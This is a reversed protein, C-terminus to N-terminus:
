EIRRGTKVLPKGDEDPTGFSEAMYAAHNVRCNRADNLTSFIGYTYKGSSDVVRYAGNSEWIETDRYWRDFQGKFDRGATPHGLSGCVIMGLFVGIIIGGILGPVVCCRPMPTQQEKM